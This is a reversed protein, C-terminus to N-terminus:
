SSCRLLQFLFGSLNEFGTKLQYANKKDLVSHGFYYRLWVGMLHSIYYENVSRNDSMLSVFRKLVKKDFGFSKREILVVTVSSYAPLLTVIDRDNAFLM